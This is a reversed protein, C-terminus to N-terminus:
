YWLHEADKVGNTKVLFRFFDHSTEAPQAELSPAGRFTGSIGADFEDIM